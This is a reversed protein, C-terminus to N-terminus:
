PSCNHDIDTVRHVVDVLVKLRGEGLAAESDGSGCVDGVTDGDLDRAPAGDHIKGAFVLRQANLM